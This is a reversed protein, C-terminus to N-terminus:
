KAANRREPSLLNGPPMSINLNFIEIRRLRPHEAIRVSV